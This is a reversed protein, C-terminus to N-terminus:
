SFLGFIIPPTLALACLTIVLLRMQLTKFRRWVHIAAAIVLLSEFVSVIAGYHNTDYYSLPSHFVWNSLPWFHQRADDHHLPFDCALHLLVSASLAVLWDTKTRYAIICVMGWLVFSNDVAFVQQWQPSFYQVDFVHQASNDMILMSFASMIFLSLDPILGGIIAARTVKPNDPRAFLSAALILQTPTNM